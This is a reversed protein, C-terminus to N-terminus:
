SYAGWDRAVWWPNARTDWTIFISPDFSDDLPKFMVVEHAFKKLPHRKELDFFHYRDTKDSARRDPGYDMPACVRERVAGGDKDSLFAVRVCRKGHLCELFESHNILFHAGDAHRTAEQPVSM